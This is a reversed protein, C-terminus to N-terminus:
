MWVQLVQMDKAVNEGPEPMELVRFLSMQVGQQGWKLKFVKQFCNRLCGCESGSQIKDTGM